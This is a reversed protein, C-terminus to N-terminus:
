LCITGARVSRILSIFPYPSGRSPDTPPSSDGYEGRQWERRTEAGGTPGGGFGLRPADATDQNIQRGCGQGADPRELQPGFVAPPEAEPGVAVDPHRRRVETLM